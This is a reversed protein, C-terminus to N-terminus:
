TGRELVDTRSSDNILSATASKPWQIFSEVNRLKYGIRRFYNQNNGFLKFLEGIFNASHSYGAISMAVSSTM